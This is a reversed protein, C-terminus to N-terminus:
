DLKDNKKGSRPILLILKVINFIVKKHKIVIAVVRSAFLKRVNKLTCRSKCQPCKLLVSFSSLIVIDSMELAFLM